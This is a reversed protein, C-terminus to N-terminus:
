DHQERWENLMQAYREPHNLSFDGHWSGPLIEMQSGPITSHLLKASDLITKQERSGAVITVKATTQTLGANIKYACNAQLFAIMDAKTIACTDRYYDAFLEKPIGLYAAQIKAFWRQKILGYSMGFTPGILAHTLKSPKVLTSEILAFQCIDPRRALMELAIQGGLSLGGLVTVQGGFHTDIYSILRAANDEITTFPAQSGAHGDLVPLIVHYDKELLKAVERYNWWSLGGGHLLLVTAKNQKGFEFITMTDGQQRNIGASTKSSHPVMGTNYKPFPFVCCQSAFFERSKNSDRSNENLSSDIHFGVYIGVGKVGTVAVAFGDQILKVLGICLGALGIWRFDLCTKCFQFAEQFSQGQVIVVGIEAEAATEAGSVLVFGEEAAQNTTSM